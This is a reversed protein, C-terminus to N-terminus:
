NTSRKLKGKKKFYKVDMESNNYMSNNSYLGVFPRIIFTRDVQCHLLSFFSLNNRHKILSAGRWSSTYPLRLIAGGNKLEASFPSSYGAERGPWKVGPSLAGLVWQVFTQAPGLASRFMM